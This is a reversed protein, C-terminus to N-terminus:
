VKLTSAELATAADNTGLVTRLRKIEVKASALADSAEGAEEQADEASAQSICLARVVGWANRRPGNFGHQRKSKVRKRTLTQAISRLISIAAWSPTSFM